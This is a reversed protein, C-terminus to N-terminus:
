NNHLLGKTVVAVVKGKSTKNLGLVNYAKTGQNQKTITHDLETAFITFDAISGVEFSKEPLNYIKTAGNVLTNVVKNFDSGFAQLMLNFFSPLTAAGFSAYEFEVNKSEIDDPCHNSMIADITGDLVGQVLALRDAETRLPPYVKYNEDFEGVANENYALNLIPVAAYVEFGEAKAKRIIEVSAASSIGIIRLPVNLWEAMVLDSLIAMTESAVPLGKLGLNVNIIGENVVGGTVLKSEFPFHLYPINLSACYQMLKSRLSVSASSVIGDTQGISGAQFMEFVEAMEKGLQHESSLGLPYINVNCQNATNKIQSIVTANEPLPNSGCLAAVSTFGGVQAAQSLSTLDEKWSAGPDPCTAFADFWGLSICNGTADFIEFNAQNIESAINSIKGNEILIDVLQNNWQSRTDIVKASKILLNNTM